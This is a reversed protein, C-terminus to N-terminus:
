NVNIQANYMGMSCTLRIKGPKQAPLEITETGTTDFVKQYGISPIVLSRACGKVDATTVTLRIPAGAKAQMIAPSYASDTIRMTLENSADASTDAVVGGEVTSNPTQDDQVGSDILQRLAVSSIPSGALNLGSDIAVLGLILVLVGAVKWFRDQLKSGLKTALYALTFFLPTTGLVFAFMILAGTIPTGSAVALAMMAQTVGCPIFVTLAGLFMPQFWSSNNSKTKRRIYRTVAKPPELAFHRFIPHVNLLRLATGVMFIGISIQLIARMMPTLQLMSGLWGLMFGLLTYAVLKAVLFLVIPTALRQKGNRKETVLVPYRHKLNQLAEAYRSKSLDRQNLLELEHEYETGRTSIQETMEEETSVAISSALMGGQVALCSLGGTTLGTIFILGLNAM